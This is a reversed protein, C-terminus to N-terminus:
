KPLMPSYSFLFKGQNLVKELRFKPLAAEARAKLDAM